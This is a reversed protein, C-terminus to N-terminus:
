NESWSHSIVGTNEDGSMNLSAIVNEDLNNVDVLATNIIKGSTSPGFFMTKLTFNMTYTVFRRTQFDGDYDDQVSVGNLIIPVDVVINNEPVVKVSMTFEPSFYPLIQEVIQLGDEQTKTIAYLSIDINYPVPAFLKKVSDADGSGCSITSMRNTKRSPDYALGTIEFSLRPLSIYTNNSLNPDQEIRVLWKEKPAYAIPVSITKNAYAKLSSSGVTQSNNLIYTGVGGRGSLLATVKTGDSVGEGEILDGRGLEGSQVSSVTLTNGTISGIFAFSPDVAKRFIKVDSFLSGFSVIIKRTIAHYFIQNVLM